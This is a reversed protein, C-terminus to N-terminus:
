LRRRLRFRGRSGTSTFGGVFTLLLVLLAAFWLSDMM